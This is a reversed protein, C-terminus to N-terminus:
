SGAGARERWGGKGGKNAATGRGMGAALLAAEERASARRSAWGRARM